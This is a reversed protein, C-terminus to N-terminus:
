RLDRAAGTPRRCESIFDGILDRAARHLGIFRAHLQVEGPCDLIEIRLSIHQRNINVELLHISGPSLGRGLIAVGHESINLLRVTHGDVSAFIRTDVPYRPTARREGAAPKM